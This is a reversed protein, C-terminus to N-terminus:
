QAVKVMSPRIVKNDFMYGRQLEEIIIGSEEETDEVQMIAEHCRHDFPEGAAPIVELGEQRLVNVLQRYIMEVGDKFESDEEESSLAREFNDIVPLIEEVLEIKGELLLGEKEKEVRRRYNNFDAKLRSLHKQYSNNEDELEEVTTKLEEIKEEDEGQQEDIQAEDEPSYEEKSNDTEKEVNKEDPTLEEGNNESNGRNDEKKGDENNNIEQELKEESM